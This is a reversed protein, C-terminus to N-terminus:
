AAAARVNIFEKRVLDSLVDQLRSRLSEIGFSDEDLCSWPRKSFFEREKRNRDYSRDEIDKKGPNRLIHWGLNMSRTQGQVLAIVQDEAGPDILDPKTLVPLTREGEPDLESAIQLIEQTAVDVNAALVALMVSRENAMYQHVMDKVFSIDEMTTVGPTSDRFIGPVDIVSLHDQNPGSIELQLVDGSFTPLSPDKQRPGSIGM